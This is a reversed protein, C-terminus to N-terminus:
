ATLTIVLELETGERNARAYFVCVLMQFLVSGRDCPTSSIHYPSELFRQRTQWLGMAVFSHVVQELTM